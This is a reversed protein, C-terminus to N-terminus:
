KPLRLTRESFDGQEARTHCAGCNAPSRVAESKWLAPPVEDHEGVFWRAETIRALGKSAPVAKRGANASLYARIEDAAQADLGADTDFHQDLRAMIGQWAQANLLAPPYAVHCSGCEARYTANTVPFIERGALAPVSLLCALVSCLGLNVNKM